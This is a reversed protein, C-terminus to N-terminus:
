VWLTWSGMTLHNHRPSIRLSGLIRHGFPWWFNIQVFRSWSSENIRVVLILPRILYCIPNKTTQQKKQPPNNHKHLNYIIPFFFLFVVLDIFIFHAHCWARVHALSIYVDYSHDNIVVKIFVESLLLPVKAKNTKISQGTAFAAPPTLPPLIM